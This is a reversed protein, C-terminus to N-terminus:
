THSHRRAHVCLHAHRATQAAGAEREDRQREDAREGVDQQQQRFEPGVEQQVTMHGSLSRPAATQPSGKQYTVWVHCTDDMHIDCGVSSAHARARSDGNQSIM